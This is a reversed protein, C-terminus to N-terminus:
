DESFSAFKEVYTGILKNAPKTRRALTSSADRTTKALEEFITEFGSNMGYVILFDTTVHSQTLDVMEKTDEDRSYKNKLAQDLWAPRILRYTEAAVAEAITYCLEYKESKTTVPIGDVTAQYHMTNYYYDQSEDYLPMPIIGFDWDINRFQLATDLNELLLMMKGEKFMGVGNEKCYGDYSLLDYLKENININIETDFNAVPINDNDRTTYTAGACIAIKDPIVSIGFRDNEDITGNGDDLYAAKVLENMKDLTWQKNRVLDYMNFDEGSVAKSMDINFYVCFMQHIVGIWTYGNMWFVHDEVNLANTYESCWWDANLDIIEEFEETDKMNIVYGEMALPAVYRGNGCIYDFEDLDSDVMRQLNMQMAEIKGAGYDFVPCEVKVNFRTAVNSATRYKAADVVEKTDAEEPVVWNGPTYLYARLVAGDFNKDELSDIWQRETEEATMDSSATTEANKGDGGSCAALSVLMSLLLFASIVKIWINSHKM